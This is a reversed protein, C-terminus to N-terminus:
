SCQQFAAEQEKGGPAPVMKSQQSEAAANSLSTDWYSTGHKIQM